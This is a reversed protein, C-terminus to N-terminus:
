IHLNLKNSYYKFNIGNTTLVLKSQVADCYNAILGIIPIILKTTIKDQIWLDFKNSILFINNAQDTIDM